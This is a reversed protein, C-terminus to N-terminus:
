QINKEAARASLWGLLLAVAAGACDLIVDKTTDIIYMKTGVPWSAIDFYGEFVEWLIGVVFTMPIVWKPKRLLWLTTLGVAFGGIFHNVSDLHKILVYWHNSVGGLHIYLLISLSVLILIPLKYRSM